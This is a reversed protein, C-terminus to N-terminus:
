RLRAIDNVAKGITEDIMTLMRQNTEYARYTTMMDVMERAVEVNSSELANQRIAYNTAEQPAEESTYLNSGQKRLSANDAFTVLRLRDLYTDGAMINGEEDVVFDTSEVLIAGNEGQVYNGEPDTLFGEANVTFAGARTYREGAPTEVVFYANGILAFDTSIGTDELNGQVFDTDIYDVHTGFNLPGVGLNGSRSVINHDHIRNILVDEFSTSILNNKKYGTTEVNTINNTIVEMKKRQLMMGTAAIYQGRIM